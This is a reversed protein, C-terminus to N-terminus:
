EGKLLGGAKLRLSGYYVIIVVTNARWAGVMVPADPFRTATDVMM